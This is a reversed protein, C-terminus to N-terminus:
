FTLHAFRGEGIRAGSLRQLVYALLPYLLVTLALRQWVLWVGASPAYTITMLLAVILEFACAALAFRAWEAWFTFPPQREALWRSGEVVVLLAFLEAGIPGDRLLDFPLALAFVLAPPTTWPRRSAWFYLALLLWHPGQLGPASLSVPALSLIIAAVGALAPGILALLSSRRKM